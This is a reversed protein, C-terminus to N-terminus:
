NNYGWLEQIFRHAIIQRYFSLDNRDITGLKFARSFFKMDEVFRERIDYITAM